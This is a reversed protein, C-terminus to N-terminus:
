KENSSLSGYTNNTDWGTLNVFAGNAPKALAIIIGRVCALEEGAPPEFDSANEGVEFQVGTIQWTAGATTM